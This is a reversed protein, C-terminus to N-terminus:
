ANSLFTLGAIFILALVFILMLLLEAINDWITQQPPFLRFNKSSDYRRQIPHTRYNM